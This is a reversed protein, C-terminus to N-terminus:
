ITVQKDDEEEHDHEKEEPEGEQDRIEASEGELVPLFQKEFMEGMDKRMLNVTVTVISGATITADEEGLM